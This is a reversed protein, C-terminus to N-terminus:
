LSRTVCIRDGTELLKSRLLEASRWVRESLLPVWHPKIELSPERFGKLRYGISIYERRHSASLQDEVPHPTPFMLLPNFPMEQWPSIIKRLSSIFLKIKWQAQHLVKLRDQSIPPLEREQNHNITSQHEYRSLPVLFNGWNCFYSFFFFVLLVFHSLHFLVSRKGLSFLSPLPDFSSRELPSNMNSTQSCSSPSTSVIFSVSFEVQVLCM